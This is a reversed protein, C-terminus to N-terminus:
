CTARLIPNSCQLACLKRSTYMQVTPIGFIRHTVRLPPEMQRFTHRMVAPDIQQLECPTKLAYDRAWAWSGLAQVLEYAYRM